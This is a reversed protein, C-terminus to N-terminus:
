RLSHPPQDKRRDTGARGNPVVPVDLANYARKSSLLTAAQNNHGVGEGVNATVQDDCQYSPMAQGGYIGVCMEGFAATQHSVARIRGVHEPSRCVIDVTDESALLRGVQRHLLRVFELQNDIELGGFREAELHRRRQKGAGVLHDFSVAFSHRIWLTQSSRDRVSETCSTGM